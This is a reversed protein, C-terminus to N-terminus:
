VLDTGLGQILGAGDAKQLMRSLVDVILNFILPSLPDGQRLGKGTHFFEGEKNNIILGVSWRKLIDRIWMMWRSNFGRM